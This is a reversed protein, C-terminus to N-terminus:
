LEEAVPEKVAAEEDEIIKEQPLYKRVIRYLEPIQIPKSLYDDMGSDLLRERVGAVVDATLAVIKVDPNVTESHRRIARTAEEGNMVPMHSDMFILDFAIREAKYVAEEGNGAEDVVAGLPELMAKVVERNLANDDALLIRANATHFAPCEDRQGATARQADAQNPIKQPVTFYFRSGEGYKSHVGVTGGMQDVFYKSIALGIGSGEKGHNKEMNLQTYMEFLKDLDKERIGQGTDEVEYKLLAMDDTKEECRITIDIRGRETYKIANSAYNLMVQKIRVADGKLTPPMDEQIHFYVPVRQDINRANIVAVADEVLSETTYVDEIISFKGAEIKSLDLIDNVIELLGTSASKIVTVCRRLDDSMESRLAVDSMGIIANMPTRIEHSMSSLFDSKMRNEEEASYREEMLMKARRVLTYLIPCIVLYEVTFGLMYAIYMQMRPRGQYVVEYKGASNIYVSVAMVLYSFVSAEAVLKPEFYLCSFVPVLAYSIYIGIHNNTGLGGIFLALVILMYYKMVHDPLYRILLSPSVTIVLGAILLATTYDRGFEFVGTSSCVVLFLIVASSVLFINAIIRNVQKTNKEFM